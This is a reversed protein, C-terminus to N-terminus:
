TNATRVHVVAVHGSLMRTRADVFASKMDAPDEIPGVSWAGYGAAVKAFDVEPDESRNGIGANDPNRGRRRAIRGQHDEDNYFSRNDNIVLLLPIRYHVATWIAAPGMTLDGDGIIGVAHRGLEHAGLAGGVIAGAGYGTGAGGSHGLHDGADKFKWVGNPWSRSNRLVLVPDLDQVVEWLEHVLRGPAIPREDWRRRVEDRASEHLREHLASAESIRADRLEVEAATLVRREAADALVEAARIPDALHREVDGPVPGRANSWGRRTLERLSIDIVPKSLSTRLGDVDRRGGIPELLSGLERVGFALVLDADELTTNAGSRPRNTGPPDGEVNLPFDTPIVCAQDIDQCAVGLADALRTVAETAAPDYGMPGVIILPRAAAAVADVVREASELDLGFGAPVSTGVSVDSVDALDEEQLAQDLTIYVPGKPDTRAIQFGQELAEITDVLEIPEADWKVYARVLEAQAAATHYWDIGRRGLTRAPGGGGLVVLPVEDIWANYVAMSAHMLGVLDHVVAFGTTRTAKAYGHALAVAIEEHHCLLVQPSGNARYNVVSDHLGRYSSGPTMALYSCGMHALTDAILDSAYARPYGDSPVSPREVSVPGSTDGPADVTGGGVGPPAGSNVTRTM